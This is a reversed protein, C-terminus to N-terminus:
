SPMIGEGHQQDPCLKPDAVCRRLQSESVQSHQCGGFCRKQQPVPRRSSVNAQQHPEFCTTVCPVDSGSNKPPEFHRTCKWMREYPAFVWPIDYWCGEFVTQGQLFALQDDRGLCKWTAFLKERGDKGTVVCGKPTTPRQLLTRLEEYLASNRQRLATRESESPPQSQVLQEFRANALEYLTEDIQTALEARDVFTSPDMDDCASPANVQKSMVPEVISRYCGFYKCFGELKSPDSLQRMHWRSLPKITENVRQLAGSRVDAYSATHSTGGFRVNAPMFAISELGAKQAVMLAFDEFRETIGVIDFENLVADARRRVSQRLSEDWVPPLISSSSAREDDGLQRNTGKHAVGLLNRSQIDMPMSWACVPIQGIAWHQFYSLYLEVPRRLLTVALFTCNASEWRQRIRRILPIGSNAFVPSGLQGAHLELALRLTPDVPEYLLKRLYPNWSRAHPNVGLFSIFDLEARQAQRNLIARLTTGATKEPHLFLMVLCSRKESSESAAALVVPLVLLVMMMVAMKHNM